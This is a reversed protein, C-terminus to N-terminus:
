TLTERTWGPDGGDDGRMRARPGFQADVSRTRLAAVAVVREGDDFASEVVEVDADGADM